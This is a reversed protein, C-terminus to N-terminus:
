LSLYMKTNDIVVDALSLIHFVSFFYSQLLAQFTLYSSSAPETASHHHSIFYYVIINEQTM